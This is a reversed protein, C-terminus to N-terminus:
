DGTKTAKGVNGETAKAKAWEVLRAVRPEMARRKAFFSNLSVDANSPPRDIEKARDILYMLLHSAVLMFRNRSTTKKATDAANRIEDLLGLSACRSKVAPSEFSLNDRQHAFDNRIARIINLDRKVREDILGFCFAAKIRASFTGLPSDGVLLEDASASHDVFRARILEGLADDLWAAIILAYGRDSEKVLESFLRIHEDLTPPSVGKKSM